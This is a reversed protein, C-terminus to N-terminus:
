NGHTESVTLSLGGDSSNHVHLSSSRKCNRQLWVDNDRM